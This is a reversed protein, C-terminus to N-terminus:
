DISEVGLGRTLYQYTGNYFDPARTPDDHDGPPIFIVMGQRARTLLVRYANVVYRRRQPNAVNTWKAGQFKHHNWGGNVFRLDADWTVCAWDVELGQVQFETAADELYHSSETDRRDGLFWKVPDVSVRVDIAHPKLRAASSSALLGVQESGRAHRRLWARANKLDRTAVIPYRAGIQHLHERAADTGCDLVSKVFGAVRESRFSRVSTSLHLRDDLVADRERLVSVSTTAAYESDTLSPSIYVRWSPFRTSVEDLWTSIGAEGRNIEQGGGVLCIVVAWDRHRDLCSILFAPESQSFDSINQRQAMFQRTRDLNWARQAEDFIAIHEVPARDPDRIGENRFHHVNQIFAKVKQRQEGIRAKSGGRTKADRALAERLVAVLPGNGSLYVAHGDGADRRRTAVDLGVLTKGAGPVGTVFVIAKEKKTFADNVIDEIAATTDSLNKAGADSRTIATAETGAYLARAAEIITPTPRYPASGWDKPNLAALPALQLAEEIAQRISNSTAKRPARVGDRASDPWAGQGKTARTAVLLPFIAAEHSGLHFNKLDLAYDWVQNIADISFQSAGCKFEIPVVASDLVVVADIRTGLRPVEFELYLWGPIDALSGKLLAIEERWADSQTLDLSPFPSRAVLRGLIADETDSLFTAIDSSYYASAKASRPLPM